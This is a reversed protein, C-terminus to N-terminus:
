LAGSTRYESTAQLKGMDDLTNDIVNDAYLDDDEPLPIVMDHDAYLGDDDDSLFHWSFIFIM